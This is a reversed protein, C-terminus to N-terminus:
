IGLHALHGTMSWRTRDPRWTAAETSVGEFLDAAEHHQREIEALVADLDEM